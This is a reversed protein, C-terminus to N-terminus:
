RWPPLDSLSQRAAPTTPIAWAQFLPSLDEGAARSLRILWQDRKDADTRPRQDAPLTRYAAIANRVPDWGFRALVQDYMALALFPDRKWQEFDPNKLYAAVRRPDHARQKDLPIGCCKDLVYRTFLNVTVEGTGEFTWDSSQHNHGVEHYLGWVPERGSRLWQLDVMPAAADLHTMIPYGAHMYGASIQVDAVYREPRSRQPPIGALEACAEMVQDWFRMLTEPDELKRAADAPITLIVHRGALEAWPAPRNRIESRWQDVSTHGLRYFAAPVGGDVVVEFQATRSRRPVEIYILGGFPSAIRTTQERLPWSRSIEPYRRWTNLHWIRDTHAGIRVSLRVDVASAPVVVEIVQGPAAYLGTSHWGDTATDISLAQRTRPADAPVAGPFADAGPLARVQAAPLDQSQRLRIAAIIRPLPTDLKLPRAPTPVADHQEALKALRPLLLADDAPLTQAALTLTAAAQAVQQKPAAEGTLLRLAEGAHLAPGPPEVKFAGAQGRLYGDAYLLGAPALLRNAPHDQISRGPNLQLWGWGLSITVLGGGERVFRAVDDVEAPRLNAPNVCFVDVGAGALDAPATSMADMGEAKLTALLDAQRHVAVKPRPKDATWAIANRVLLQTDHSALAAKDFYGTHGFAIIRGRGLHAGAVVPASTADDVPAAIIAFADPGFVSVPGPIGPAAITGVGERIQGADRALAPIYLMGLMFLGAFLRNLM